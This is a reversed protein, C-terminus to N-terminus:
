VSQRLMRSVQSFTLRRPLPRLGWGGSELREFTWVQESAWSGQGLVVARLIQPGEPLLRLDLTRGRGLERGEENVWLIEPDAVSRGLGDLVSVRIVSLQPLTLEGESAQGVLVIKPEGPPQAHEIALSYEGVGTAIGSTALVRLQVEKKKGLHSASVLRSASLRLSRQQTRPLLSRWTDPEELCQVLYWLEQKSEEVASWHIEFEHTKADYQANVRVSPPTPIDEEYIRDKGEWIVLKAVGKPFPVPQRIIKPWCQEPQCKDCGCHTCECYLPQCVLTRGHNDLLELSFSTCHRPLQNAYTPFHFSPRREVMRDRGITLGLFLTMSRARLWEARKEKAIAGTQQKDLARLYAFNTASASIGTSSPFHRMLNNYTYPSVWDPGSYSMFDYTNAPNKVVGPGPDFGFEGISDSPYSAYHPYNEDPDAPHLCRSPTDCPAHSLGFAHGIEQAATPGDYIYGASVGGGGCGGVTGQTIGNPLLAYYIDDSDGRMDRLRDLLENFGNGCGNAIDAQMDEAFDITTYGTILAEGIPYVKEVFDLTNVLDTQNPSVLNLGQGTYHVGVGFVRLPQLDDFYLTRQFSQSHQSPNTADFVFCHLRLEGQCWGEPITFNLTHGVQARDIQTDHRPLIASRPNLTFATSGISTSVEIEDM